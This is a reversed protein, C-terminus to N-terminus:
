AAGEGMLQTLEAIGLPEACLFGQYLNCGEKALLDLQEPTEVGEAIVTLGLSRAMDIVGRVVVRDRASGTIDQALKKDIKLYDLPLAKLYALSSYGTGFDDIAVRIGAARLQAFLDAAVGLDDILGGETIEVTVRSRAFGLADVRDIFLDAFGSRHVDAATVNIALRLASLAAPWAAARALTAQQVHDSLAATLEAREAAAFLTEAGLLGLTPHSWRALAEVGVIQGSAIAVQPQFLIEVEDEAIARRLDVALDYSPPLTADALAYRITPGDSARAAELAEGAERLLASAQSEGRRATAIGIRAGLTVIASGSVFPRALSEAIQDAILSIRDRPADLVGLVAFESGGMRAVLADRGFADHALTGLRSAVARLVSDGAARGYAVNVMEFRGIGILLAHVRGEGALQRDLWRRAALADSIGTVADRTAARREDGDALPTDLAEGGLRRGTRLAAEIAGILVDDACYPPLLHTVGASLAGPPTGIVLLALGRALASESLQDLDRDDASTVILRAHSALLRQALPAESAPVCSFGLSALRQALTPSGSGVFILGRTAAEGAPEGTGM